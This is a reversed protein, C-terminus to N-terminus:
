SHIDFCLLLTVVTNSEGAEHMLKRMEKEDEADFKRPVLAPQSHSREPKVSEQVHAHASPSRNAPLSASLHDAHFIPKTWTTASTITNHYQWAPRTVFVRACAYRLRTKLSRCVCLFIISHVNIPFHEVCFIPETRTTASKDLWNHQLRESSVLLIRVHGARLCISSLCLM